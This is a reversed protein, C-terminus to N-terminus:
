DWYMKYPIIALDAVSSLVSRILNWHIENSDCKLYEMVYQKKHEDLSKFWGITTDNDHTGTYAVTNHDYNHPLFGNQPSFDDFAFHLIRMGPLKFDNRIEEVEPTIVGLNEAIIPLEGLFDFVTKFFHKGPAKVWKGKIANQSGAPVHWTAEFGRFHDIRLIDITKMLTTFRLRWWKYNDEKMKEWNYQPNGWLQGTASFYDPPVGAVYSLLFLDSNAWLDSSDYSVFIPLDGIISINRENAYFKLEEWQTFFIYQLWKHFSIDNKLKDSLEKVSESNHKAVSEEWNDWCAYDYRKKIAMFLTYDEIWYRNDICFREFKSKENNNTNRIFNLFAKELIPMKWNIVSGYDVNDQPFQPKDIIDGRNLIGQEILKDISILYHNGAFASFCQYPSDGYGTPGLPLIQWIKQGSARLFEIFDYASKGFDGIGYESPFSTPHCLIGCQRKFEM